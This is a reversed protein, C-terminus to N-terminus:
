RWWVAGIRGMKKGGDLVEDQGMERRVRAAEAVEEGV